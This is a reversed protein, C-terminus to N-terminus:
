STLIRCTVNCDQKSVAFCPMEVIQLIAVVRDQESHVKFGLTFQVKKKKNTKRLREWMGILLRMSVPRKM